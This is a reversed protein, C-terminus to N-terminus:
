ALTRKCATHNIRNARWSRGKSVVPSATQKKSGEIPRSPLLTLRAQRSSVTDGRTGHQLKTTSNIQTQSPEKSTVRGPIRNPHGSSNFLLSTFRDKFRRASPLHRLVRTPPPFSNPTTSVSTEQRLIRKISLRSNSHSPLIVQRCPNRQGCRYIDQLMQGHHNNRSLM